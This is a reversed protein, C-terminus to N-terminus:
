FNPLNFYNKYERRYIRKYRLAINKSIGKLCFFMSKQLM